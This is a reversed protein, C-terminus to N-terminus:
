SSHFSANRPSVELLAQIAFLFDEILRMRVFSRFFSVWLLESDKNVLSLTASLNTSIAFSALERAQPRLLDLPTKWWHRGWRRTAELLAAASFGTASIVKGALYALLVERLGGNTFYAISIIALSIVGQIVNLAALRRFRDFIQLLGTSSEAILNAIVILGYLVFLGSLGPDKAFFRAGLPALLYVLGFAALSALMELLAAAKFTAAARSPDDAESYQGVYKIVMEGMRFSAFKNVTSTFMIITGLIGFAEVGLLRATLIGGLMSLGASIGTASFLYSSNKIIRRVLKQVETTM